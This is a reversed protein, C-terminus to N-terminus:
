LEFVVVSQSEFHGVSLEESKEGDEGGQYKGSRKWYM